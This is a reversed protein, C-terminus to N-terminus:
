AARTRAHPPRRGPLLRGRHARGGRGGAPRGRGADPVAPRRGRRLGPRRLGDRHGEPRPRPRGPGDQRGPHAAPTGRGGRVRRGTRPHPGRVAVGRGRQPVCRLDYPDPGRAPRLGEGPRGLDRGRDGDRAGRRRGAGASQGGTRAGAGARGGRDTRAARGPLGARRAGRAAPAAQRAAPHARLLQRGQPRRDERRHRRPVQQRRHRAPPRLRHPGPHPGGGGRHPAQPHRRRHGQGHRRRGRGGRHAALRPPGPRLDAEGRLRQRGLPRHGTGHRVGAPPPAPHQPRHPRLLRHAPRTSRRPRQHAPVPHPGPDRGDGRRLHPHRQQVRGARHAVVGIDAFPHAPFPVQSEEARVGQRAQGM